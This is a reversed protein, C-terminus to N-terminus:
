RDYNDLDNELKVLSTESCSTIRDNDIADIWNTDRKHDEAVAGAFCDAAQIGSSSHSSNYKPDSNPVFEEIHSAIDASDSQSAVHDFEFIVRRADRARQEFLLEGYAYGTLALDWDPPFSVDQYLLYQDTLTQLQERTFKAYGLETDDNEALCDIFRRKQIETLDSWKAEEVDSVNRVTQKPCQGAQIIDGFVVAVVVVDCHGNILSRFHGSVDGFGQM